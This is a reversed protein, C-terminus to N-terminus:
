GWGCNPNHLAAVESACAQPLGYLMGEESPSALAATASMAMVIAALVLASITRIM